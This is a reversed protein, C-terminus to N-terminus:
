SSDSATARTTSPTTRPTMAPPTSADGSEMLADAEATTMGYALVRALAQQQAVQAETYRRESVIESGLGKVRQWERQAVVLEGQAAAMEVSSLTMLRQGVEVHDGLRVHRAVVQATIRPTVRASQYANITVEGPVRFTQSLRRLRVREVLVGAARQAEPELEIISSASENEHDDHDDHDDDNALLTAPQALCLGLALLLLLNKMRYEMTRDNLLEAWRYKLDRTIM